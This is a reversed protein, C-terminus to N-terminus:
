EQPQLKKNEDNYGLILAGRTMWKLTEQASKPVSFGDSLWKRGAKSLYAEAVSRPSAVMAIAGPINGSAALGAATGYFSAPILNQATGSPNGAIKEAGQLRKGLRAVEMVERLEGKDRFIANLTTDDIKSLGQYLSYPSVVGSEDSKILSELWKGKLEKFKGKGVAKRVREINTASNNRFVKQVIQEPEAKAIQRISSYDFLERGQRAANRAEMWANRFEGGTQLAFDDVDQEIAKALQKLQGASRSSQGSVNSGTKAGLDADRILARITSLDSNISNFNGGVDKKSFDRLIRIIEKDQLSPTKGLEENLLENARAKTNVLGINSDKPFLSKAKSYLRNVVKEQYAKSRDVLGKKAADGVETTTKKGVYSEILPKIEKDRFAQLQNERFGQVRNASTPLMATANEIMAVSKKNTVDAPSLEIGKGRARDLLRQVEPTVRKAAPAILKQGTAGILQGGMEMAAGTGIDRTTDIAADILNKYQPTGTLLEDLRNSINRAGAYGIGAGAVGGLPNGGTGITGAVGGGVLGLAELIPSGVEKLAGVAGYINPNERGWEPVGGVVGSPEQPQTSEVKPQAQNFQSQAYEMVQAETADDPATIEFREGNPATIEYRAM